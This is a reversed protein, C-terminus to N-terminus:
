LKGQRAAVVQGLISLAIEAPSQAGIDLGVPGHVRAIAKASFGAEQLRVVRKAHTKRSGLAGIYRVPARLFLHLAPDDIKPDHTLLVAYTDDNLDMKELVPQPWEAIVRDPRVPFREEVAFIRRPDIVTTGFDLGAALQVLPVSIHGAGIIVLSDRRRFLQCFVSAAPAVFEGPLPPELDVWEGPSGADFVRSERAAYINLAAEVAADREAGWDGVASGDAHVLLHSEGQPSLRTLLIAPRDAELAETLARWVAPGQGQQLHPAKEVRVQVEGGCSLGVSWAREDEVGFHLNAPPAGQLVQRAKDIVAGEICGGSVSGVVRGDAAVALASGPQRPSSGWTDVVRALAFPTGDRTWANLQPWIDRM